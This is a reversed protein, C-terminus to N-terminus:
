SKPRLPATTETQNDVLAHIAHFASEGIGKQFIPPYVQARVKMFAAVAAPDFQKGSEAVLVKDIEVPSRAPRYRRPSMMADLADAVGLVRALLPIGEGALGDPYGRGDYREHHGRVAPCLRKFPEISAVIREGTVPHQKIEEFESDTLKGPKWLVEDRTGIKGIDHLLEALFVDGVLADSLGMAQAILVAIRAVRESHGATYPDKADIVATLSHVLGNLLQKTAAQAHARFGALLKLATRVVEEEGPDFRRGSELSVVVLAGGGRGARAGCAASPQLPAPPDPNAWRFSEMEVPVASLLKRAFAACADESLAARGTLATAKAGRSYWFAFDGGVGDRAASVVAGLAEPSGAADTLTDVLAELALLSERMGHAPVTTNAETM